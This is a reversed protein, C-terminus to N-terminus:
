RRGAPRAAFARRVRGTNVLVVVGFLCLGGVGEMAKMWDPFDGPILTIVIVAVLMVASSIRLRLYAAASGRMARLTFTAMLVATGAVIVGHVWANTTAVSAHDHLVALVAVAALSVALYGAVLLAPPRLEPVTTRPTGSSSM